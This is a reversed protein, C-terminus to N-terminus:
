SPGTKKKLSQNMFNKCLSFCDKSTVHKITIFVTFEKYENHIIKKLLQMYTYTYIVPLITVM